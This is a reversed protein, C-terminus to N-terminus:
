NTGCTSPCADGDNTNGDDCTEPIEIIGNGCVPAPCLVADQIYLLGGVCDAREGVDTVFTQPSRGYLTTFTESGCRARLREVLEDHASNMRRGAVDLLATRNPADLALGAIRDLCQRRARFSFSMVADTADAAAEVCARQAAPATGDAPRYVASIAATEWGRCFSIVDAQLDFSSLYQLNIVERESCNDDIANLASIRAADVIAQTADQDCVQGALEASRCDRRARWAATACQTAARAIMRQCRATSASFGGWQSFPLRVGHASAQGAIAMVFLLAIPAAVRRRFATYVRQMAWGDNNRAGGYEALPM